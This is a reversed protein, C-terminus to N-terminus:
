PHASFFATLDSVVQEPCEEQIFHGCQNYIKLESNKVLTQLRKGTEPTVGTDNAGWLILLPCSIGSLGAEIKLFEAKFNKRYFANVKAHTAYSSSSVASMFQAWSFIDKKFVMMKYFSRLGKESAFVKSQLPMLILLLMIKRLFPLRDFTDSFVIADSLMVGKVEFDPFLRIM